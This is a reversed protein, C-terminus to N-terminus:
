RQLNERVKLNVWSKKLNFNYLFAQKMGGSLNEFADQRVVYDLRLLMESKMQQTRDCQSRTHEEFVGPINRVYPSQM